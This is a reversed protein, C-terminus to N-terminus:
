IRFYNINKLYYASEVALGHLLCLPLRGRLSRSTTYFSPNGIPRHFGNVANQHYGIPKSHQQTHVTAQQQPISSPPVMTSKESLKKIDDKIQNSPEQTLGAVVWELGDFLDEFELKTQVNNTSKMVNNDKAVPIISSLTQTITQRDQNNSSLCKSGNKAFNCDVPLRDFLDTAHYNVVKQDSVSEVVKCDKIESEPEIQKPRLIVQQESIVGNSLPPRTKNVNYLHPSQKLQPLHVMVGTSTNATPGRNSVLAHEERAISFHSEVKRERSVWRKDVYKARIFNEIGVRDYKPPLEAEWYSNSKNNGMSQIFTIQDPLWTDLTASRVKSIHVGLSRHVGSCQMCIFIGLNVSAWRPSKSKCDACERNEPLKLLGELIKRHKEDLEKSVRSKQNM